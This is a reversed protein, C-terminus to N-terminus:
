REYGFAERMKQSMPLKQTARAACRQLERSVAPTVGDRAAKGHEFHEALLFYIESYSFGAQALLKAASMDFGSASIDHLGMGDGYWRLRLRARGLVLATGLRRLVDPGEVPELPQVQVAQSAPARDLEACVHEPLVLPPMDRALTYGQGFAIWGGTGRTDLGPVINQRTRLNAWAPPLSYILHWGGSVTRHVRTGTPVAWQTLWGHAACGPKYEDFDITYIGNGMVWGFGNAQGWDFSSVDQTADLHGNRTLPVKTWKDRAADWDLRIPFVPQGLRAAEAAWAHGVGTPEFHPVTPLEGHQAAIQLDSMSSM